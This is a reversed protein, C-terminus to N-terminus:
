TTSQKNREIYLSLQEYPKIYLSLQEHYYYAYIAYLGLSSRQM